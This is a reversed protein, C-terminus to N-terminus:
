FLSLRLLRGMPLEATAVDAFPLYKPGLRMWGRALKHTLGSM